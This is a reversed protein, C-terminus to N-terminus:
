KVKLINLSKSYIDEIKDQWNGIWELEVKLTTKSVNKGSASVVVEYRGPHLSTRGTNPRLFVDFWFQHINNISAPVGSANKGPQLIFGFDCHRYTGSPIDLELRHGRWHSWFLRLPMFDNDVEFKGNIFKKVEELSVEVAEAVKWGKNMVRFRFYHAKSVIAGTKLDTFATAHCDRKDDPFFQIELSPSNIADLIFDKLLALIGTVLAINAGILSALVPPAINKSFQLISSIAVIYSSAILALALFIKLNHRTRVSM